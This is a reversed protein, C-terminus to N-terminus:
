YINEIKEVSSIKDENNLKILRIGQTNRSSTRLNLISIRISLGSKNIIIIENKDLIDIISILFGTKKTIQM